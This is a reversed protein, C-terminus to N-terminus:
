KNESDLNMVEDDFTDHNIAKNRMRNRYAYVTNTSYNLMRAIKVSENVGLKVFGYIRLEPSLSKKEKEIEYRHEPVLLSNIEEIFNPYLSMFVRDITQYIEENESESTKSYKLMKILDQAQGAKVKITVTKALQDYKESYASCLSIFDRIYKDKLKSLSALQTHELRRKRMEVVTVAMVAILGILILSVMMAYLAFDSLSSNIEERYAEDITPVLSSINVLRMRASGVYAGNMAYNIYRFAEQYQKESYLWEALTPLAFGDSIAGMVDSEAAIALYKAYETQDTRQYTQAIQFTAMGYIQSGKELKPLIALLENRSLIDKGNNFYTGAIMCARFSDKEPLVAILSDSCEEEKAKYIEYLGKGEGVYNCLNSYMQRGVTWYEIKDEKSASAMSITDFTMTAVSFYGSASLAGAMLISARRIDSPNGFEKALSHAKEAYVLSSDAMRPQYFQVIEQMVRLKESTSFTKNLQAKLSDTKLHAKEIYENSHKITTELNKLEKKPLPWIGAKEKNKCSSFPIAFLLMIVLSQLISLNTLGKMQNTSILGFKSLLDSLFLSIYIYTM